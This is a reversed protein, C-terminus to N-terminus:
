TKIPGIRTERSSSCCLATNEYNANAKVGHNPIKGPCQQAAISPSARSTMKWWHFNRIIKYPQEKTLSPVMVDNKM